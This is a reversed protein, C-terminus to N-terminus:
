QKKKIERDRVEIRKEKVRIYRKFIQVADRMVGAYERDDGREVGHSWMPPLRANGLEVM